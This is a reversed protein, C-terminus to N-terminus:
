SSRQTQVLFLHDQTGQRRISAVPKRPLHRTTKDPGMTTGTGQSYFTPYGHRGSMADHDEGLTAMLHTDPRSNINEFTEGGVLRSRLGFLEFILISRCALTSGCIRLGIEAADQPGIFLIGSFILTGFIIHVVTLTSTLWSFMSWLLTEPGYTLMTTEQRGCLIPERRITRQIARWVTGRRSGTREHPHHLRLRTVLSVFGLGYVVLSGIIWFTPVWQVESGISSVARFGMEAIVLCVNGAALMAVIYEAISLMVASATRLQPYPRATSSRQLVERPDDHIFTRIPSISPSGVAILFGLFPRRLGLIGVENATSGLLALMAPLLGLLM